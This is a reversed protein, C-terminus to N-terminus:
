IVLWASWLLCDGGRWKNHGEGDQAGHEGQLLHQQGQGHGHCQGCTVLCSGPCHGATCTGLTALQVSLEFYFQNPRFDTIYNGGAPCTTFMIIGARVTTQWGTAQHPAYFSSTGTVPSQWRQRSSSSRFLFYNASPEKRGGGSVITTSSLVEATELTDAHFISVGSHSTLFLYEKGSM